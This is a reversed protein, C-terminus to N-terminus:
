GSNRMRFSRRMESSQGTPSFGLSSLWRWFRSRPYYKGRQKLPSRVLTGVSDWEARWVKYRKLQGASSITNTVIFFGLLALWFSVQGELWMAVLLGGGVGLPAAVLPSGVVRVSLHPPNM